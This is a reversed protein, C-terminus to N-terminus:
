WEYRHQRAMFRAAEDEKIVLHEWRKSRGPRGSVVLTQRGGSFGALRRLAEAAIPELEAPGRELEIAEAFARTFASCDGGQSDRGSEEGTGCGYLFAITPGDTADGRYENKLPADEDLRASKGPALACRAGERCADILVVVSRARSGRAYASIWSDTVMDTAHDARRPMFDQPLLARRGNLEIGHGSFFVLMDDDRDADDLFDCIAGRLRTTTLERARAEGAGAGAAEIHKPDFGARTLAARLRPIDNAVYNLAPLPDYDAVALLLARRPM